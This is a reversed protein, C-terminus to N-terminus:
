LRQTAAAVIIEDIAASHRLAGEVLSLMALKNLSRPIGGSRVHLSDLAPATFLDALRGATMLRYKVYQATETATLPQLQARLYIRNRLSEYSSHELRQALRAEGFLLCTSLKEEPIEINSITRVVHLCDASLLHCEDIIIVLRRGEEHLEIIQNSLLRVLDQVRTIGVPLALGLEALIERLLGTKSIGPTVLVLIVRYKPEEFQQLLMQSVLTKGTGSPGTVLGLSTKFEAALMMSRFAEAHGDTRFFFAPHVCDAFPNERLGYASLFDGPALFPLVGSPEPAPAAPSRGILEALSDAGPPYTPLPTLQPQPNMETEPQAGRPERPSPAPSLLTKPKLASSLRPSRRSVGLTAM